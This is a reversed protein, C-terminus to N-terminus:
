LCCERCCASAVKSLVLDATHRVRLRWLQHVYVVLCAHNQGTIPTTLMILFCIQRMKCGVSDQKTSAANVLQTDTLVTAQLLMLVEASSSIRRYLMLFPARHLFYCSASLLHLYSPRQVMLYTTGHKGKVSTHGIQPKIYGRAPDDPPGGSLTRCTSGSGLRASSPRHALKAAWSSIFGAFYSGSVRTSYAYTM